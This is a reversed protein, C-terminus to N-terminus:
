PDPRVANKKVRVSEDRRLTNVLLTGTSTANKAIETGILGVCRQITSSMSQGLAALDIDVYARGSSAAAPTFLTIIRV